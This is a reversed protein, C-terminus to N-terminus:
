ARAWRRRVQRLSLRLHIFRDVREVALMSLYRHHGLDDTLRLRRGEIQDAAGVRKGASDLVNMPVFIIADPM